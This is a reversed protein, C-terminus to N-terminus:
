SRSTSLSEATPACISRSFSHAVCGELEAGGVRFIQLDDGRDALIGQHGNALHREQLVLLAEDEAKYFGKEWWVSLKEQAFGPTSSLAIALATAAALVRRM